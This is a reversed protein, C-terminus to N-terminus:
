GRPALVPVHRVLRLLAGSCAFAIAYAGLMDSPWHAGLAIRAAAGITLAAVSVAALGPRRREGMLALIALPGFTAGYVLGATSPFSFGAPTGVVRVLAPAPRPRAVYPKMWDGIPPLALVAVLVVAAGRWRALRWAVAAAAAGLAYKWPAAAATTVAQAWASGPVLAQILRTLALDGPLYPFRAAARMLATAILAALLVARRSPL